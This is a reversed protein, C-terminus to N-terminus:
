HNSYGEDLWTEHVTVWALGTPASDDTRFLVTSVRGKEEDPTTQWEEYRCVAHETGADVLEVNRIDIDFEGPQYGGSKERVMSLVSERDLRDSDPGVMVFGPAIAAEMRGFEDAQGTYWDVFFDHLREIERRCDERTPTSM